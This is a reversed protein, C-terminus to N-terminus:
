AGILERVFVDLDGGQFLFGSVGARQAAEIDRPQDGIMFSKAPDIDHDAIARLLMGPNPKRDPHDPHRYREDRAEPHFPCAYVAGIVAGDQAMRKVLLANFGNMQAEDFMGRAVGSQNTVIVALYGLRNLRRVAATAGPILKLHEPLHPYGSDEILVGDRDLFVAPLGTM